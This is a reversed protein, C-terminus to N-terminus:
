GALSNEDSSEARRRVKDICVLKWSLLAEAMMAPTCIMM